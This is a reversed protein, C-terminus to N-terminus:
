DLVSFVEALSISIEAATLADTVEHPRGGAQCEWAQRTQPDIIWAAAGWALYDECKAVVDSFRDDPSLVEACVLVPETPYPGQLRDRRQALVDPVLFKGERLRVTIETGAKIGQWSNLLEALRSQIYGHDATPMPKPRLVGDIYDCAPKYSTRLYEEESALASTTGV